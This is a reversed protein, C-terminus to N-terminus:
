GHEGAVATVEEERLVAGFSAVQQKAIAQFDSGAIEPLGLYNFLLAYNMATGDTGFVTVEHDAKALFLAASLGGPGEGVIAIRAM